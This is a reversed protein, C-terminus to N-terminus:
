GLSSVKEKTQGPRESDADELNVRWLAEHQGFVITWIEPPTLM